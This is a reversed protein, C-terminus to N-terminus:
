AATKIETSQRVPTDIMGTDHKMKKQIANYSTFLNDYNSKFLISCSFM